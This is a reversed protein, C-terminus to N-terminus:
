EADWFPVRTTNSSSQLLKDQAHKSGSRRTDSSRCRALRDEVKKRVVSALRRFSQIANCRHRSAQLASAQIHQVNLKRRRRTSEKRASSMIFRKAFFHLTKCDHWHVLFPRPLFHHFFIVNDAGRHECVRTLYRFTDPDHCLLDFVM